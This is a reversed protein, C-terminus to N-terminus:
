HLPMRSERTGKEHKYYAMHFDGEGLFLIKSANKFQEELDVFGMVLSAGIKVIPRGGFVGIVLQNMHQVIGIAGDEDGFFVVQNQSVKHGLGFIIFPEAVFVRDFGEIDIVEADVDIAAAHMHALAEIGVGFVVRDGAPEMVDGQMDIAEIEVGDIEILLHAKM